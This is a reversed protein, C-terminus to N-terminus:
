PGGTITVEHSTDAPDAYLFTHLNKLVAKPIGGPDPGVGPQEAFKKLSGIRAPVKIGTAAAAKATGGSKQDGSGGGSSCGAAALLTLGLVAAALDGARSRGRRPHPGAAGGSPEALIAPMVSEPM